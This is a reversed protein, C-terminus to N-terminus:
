GLIIQIHPIGGISLIKGDDVFGFDRVFDISKKGVINVVNVGKLISGLNKEDISKGAYFDSSLDLQM